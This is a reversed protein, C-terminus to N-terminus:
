ACNAGGPLKKLLKAMGRELFLSLLIVVVTWAFLTETELYIKSYYVQTGIGWNPKCLVEATVASKCALGLATVAGSVFYPLVSPIYLLRLRNWSSFGYSRTMELLQPDVQSIGAAVNAWVVPLVILAAIVAPLLSSHIWLMALIIFSAVPIARVLRIAPTLIVNCLAYRTTLVAFLIGLICGGAFGGFIRLLSELVILWFEGHIVSDALARLSQLPTPILLQKGVCLACFQWVAAWFAVALLIRLTKNELITSRKM